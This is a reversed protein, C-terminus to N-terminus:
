HWLQPPAGKSDDDDPDSGSQKPNNVILKLHKSRRRKFRKTREALSLHNKKMIIFRARAWLYGFGAVMGALHAVSAVGRGSYFTTMLEFLGLILVFHKAKIPFLLMFLMVREGFLLGFAMLLGYIAGSAGILPIHLGSGKLFFVQLGLYVLGSSIACFLYYKLFQKVGWVMELESGIFALLLLNFFLHMVDGHLFAYTLVQWYRHYLLLERPILGFLDVLHTGLFQDGTQQIVFAAFCIILIAKVAPTLRISM